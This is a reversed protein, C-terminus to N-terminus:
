GTRVRDFPSRGQDDFGAPPSDKNLGLETHSRVLSAGAQKFYVLLIGLGGIMMMVDGVRNFHMEPIIVRLFFGILLSFIFVSNLAIVTLRRGTQIGVCEKRIKEVDGFRSEARVRSEEPSLGASEYDLAQSDIHFRLEEDVKMEITDKRSFLPTFPEM